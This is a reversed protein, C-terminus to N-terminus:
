LFIICLYGIEQAKHIYSGSYVKEIKHEASLGEDM